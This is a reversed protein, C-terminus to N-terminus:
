QVTVKVCGEAGIPTHNKNVVKICIRHDGPALSDLTYAGKLKRLLAAEDGDVYLHIHDGNPGPNVDYTVKNQAMADLKAGDEPSIIKVTAAGEAAVALPIVGLMVCAVAFRMAMM